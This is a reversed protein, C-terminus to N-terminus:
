KKGELYEIFNGRFSEVKVFDTGKPEKLYLDLSNRDFKVEIDDENTNSFEPCKDYLINRIDESLAEWFVSILDEELKELSHKETKEFVAYVKEYTGIHLKISVKYNSFIKDNYLKLLNKCHVDKDVLKTM